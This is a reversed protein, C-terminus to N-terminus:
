AFVEDLNDARLVNKTWQRLTDITATSITENVWAPLPGFKDSLLEVLTDVRGEVRGEARRREALTMAIEKAEPGLQDYIAALAPESIQEDGVIDIYAAVCEWRHIGGPDHYLVRLEPLIKELVAPLQPNGPTFRLLTLTVLANASLHRARLADVDVTNLDDLLYRSRPVLDGLGARAQDDLDMLGGLDLPANWRRGDPGYYVVVPIILPLRKPKPPPHKDVFENWICVMYEALRLPMLSDPSSQHEALLYLRADRGKVRTRFLLDSERQRLSKKVYTGPLLELEDWEIWEAAPGSVM